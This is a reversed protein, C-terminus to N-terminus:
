KLLNNIKYKRLEMIINNRIIDIYTQNSKLWKVKLPIQITFKEKACVIEFYITSFAFMNHYTINTNIYHIKIYDNEINHKIVSIPIGSMGGSEFGLKIFEVM